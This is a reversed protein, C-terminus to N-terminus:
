QKLRMDLRMTFHPYAAIKNILRLLPSLFITDTTCDM